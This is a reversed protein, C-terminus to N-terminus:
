SFQPARHSVVAEGCIAAKGSTVRLHNREEKKEGGAPQPRRASSRKRRAKARVSCAGPEWTASQAKVSRMGRARERGRGRWQAHEMGESARSRAGASSGGPYRVRRGPRTGRARLPQLAPPAPAGGDRAPTPGAAPRRSRGPPRPLRPRGHPDRVQQPRDGKQPGRRRARLTPARARGRRTKGVGPRREARGERLM